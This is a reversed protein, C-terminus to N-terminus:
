EKEGKKIVNLAVAKEACKLSEFTQTITNNDRDGDVLVRRVYPYSYGTMNAVKRLDGYHKVTSIGKTKEMEERYM